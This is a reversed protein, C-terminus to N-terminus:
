VKEPEYSVKLNIHFQMSNSLPIEEMKHKDKKAKVIVLTKIMIQLYAHAKKM